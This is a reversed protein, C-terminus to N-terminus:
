AWSAQLKKKELLLRCVLDQRQDQQSGAARRNEVTGLWNNGTLLVGWAFAAHQVAPLASVRELARHHFASWDGKVAPVSMTLIHGTNYGSQVKSLNIM